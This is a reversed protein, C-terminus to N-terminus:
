HSGAFDHAKTQRQIPTVIAVSGYSNVCLVILSQMLTATM